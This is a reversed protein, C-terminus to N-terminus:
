KSLTHKKIFIHKKFEKLSKQETMNMISIIYLKKINLKINVQYILKNIEREKYETIKRKTYEEIIVKHQLIKDYYEQNSVMCFVILLINPFITFLLRNKATLINYLNGPFFMIFLCGIVFLVNFIVRYKNNLKSYQIVYYPQEGYIEISERQIHFTMLEEYKSNIKKECDEIYQSLKITSFRIEGHELEGLVFYLINFLGVLIQVVLIIYDTKSAHCLIYPIIGCLCVIGNLLAIQIMKSNYKNYFLDYKVYGGNINIEVSEQISNSPLIIKDLKDIKLLQETKRQIKYQQLKRIIIYSYLILSNICYTSYLTGFKAIDFKKINEEEVLGDLCSIYYTIVIVVLGIVTLLILCLKNRHKEIVKKM